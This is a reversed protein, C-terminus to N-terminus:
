NPNGLILVMEAESSANKLVVPTVRIKLNRELRTKKEKLNNTFKLINASSSTENNGISIDFEDEWGFKRLNAATSAALGNIETGNLISLPIHKLAKPTISVIPITNSTRTKQNNSNSKVLLLYKFIVFFFVVSVIVLINKRTLLSNLNAFQSPLKIIIEESKKKLGSLIQWMVGVVLFYYAMTAMSEAVVDNKLVTFLVTIGLFIMAAIFSIQNNLKNIYSFIFFSTFLSATFGVIRELFIFIILCIITNTYHNNKLNINPLKLSPLPIDIKKQQSQNTLFFLSLTTLVLAIYINELLLFSIFFIANLIFIISLSSM